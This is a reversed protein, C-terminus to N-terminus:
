FSISKVYLFADMNDMTFEKTPSIEMLVEKFDGDNVKRKYRFAYTNKFEEFYKKIKKLDTKERYKEIDDPHVCDSQVFSNLWKSLTDFEVGKLKSSRLENDATRIIEYTDNTLNVRLIKVYSECIIEFAGKQKRRDVGKNLRYYEEKNEYMKKDALKLLGHLTKVSKDSTMVYGYSISLSELIKGKWTRMNRELDMLVQQTKEKSTFLIAMFEDGGTRFVNGYAALSQKLCNSAGILLEDGAEHGYSDNAVKLGNVDMSIIAMEKKRYTKELEKLEEEYARRNLLETLEDTRSNYILKEERRKVDDIIQTAFLVKTLKGKEDREYEIFSAKAWGAITGLFDYSIIKKNGLRKELTSLDTFELLEKLFNETSTLNMIKHLVEQNGCNKYQSVIKRIVTPSSVETFIDNKLDITHLTFYTDALTQIIKQQEEEAKKQADIGQTTFVFKDPEGNINRNIVVFQIRSWGITREMSEFDIFNKEGMRDVLTELNCFELTDKLYEPKIIRSVFHNMKKTFGTQEGLYLTGREDSDLQEITQKEMDILFISKYIASLGKMTSNFQGELENTVAGLYNILKPALASKSETNELVEDLSYGLEYPEGERIMACVMTANFHYLFNGIRLIEGHTYCGVTSAISDFLETESSVKSDGWFTRRIACSYFRLGEPSFDAVDKIKSKIHNLITPKDGYSLRVNMGEKFKVGFSISNKDETPFPIRICEIGNQEVLLPFLTGDKMFKEDQEIKLYHRYIDMAPRNDIELIKNQQCKTITFSKGLGEWGVFYTCEIHLDDGGMLLAVIAKDSHGYKKSFVYSEDNTIETPNCSVGGFVQVGERLNKLPGGPLLKESGRFSTLLEVGKVWKEKNCYDWLDDLTKFDSKRSTPEVYVLRTRTTDNEFVSCIILTDQKGLQGDCINGFAQFGYYNADPFVTEIVGTIENISKFDVLQTFIQFYISSYNATSCFRKIRALERHLYNLNKVEFQFQKM